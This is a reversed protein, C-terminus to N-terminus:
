PAESSSKLSCPSDVKEKFLRADPGCPGDVHRMYPLGRGFMTEAFSKPHGCYNGDPDWGCHQCTRCPDGLSGPPQQITATTPM